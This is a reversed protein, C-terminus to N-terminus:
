AIHYSLETEYQDMVKQCDLCKKRGYMRTPYNVWEMHGTKKNEVVEVQHEMFIIGKHPCRDQLREKELTDVQMKLMKIEDRLKFM